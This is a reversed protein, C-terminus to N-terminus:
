YSYKIPNAAGQKRYKDPILKGVYLKKIKDPAEKGIFAWRGGFAERGPFNEPTAEIWETAIFAGVILGQQIPLIYNAKEAKKTSLRWAYRTAEYLSNETASRNVNILLIKHEFEATEAQYRRLIEEAHM